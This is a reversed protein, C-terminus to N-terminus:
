PKFGHVRLEGIASVSAQRGRAKQLSLASFSGHILTQDKADERIRVNAEHHESVFVTGASKIKNVVLVRSQGRFEAKITDGIMLRM